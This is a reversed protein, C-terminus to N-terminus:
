VAVIALFLPSAIEETDKTAPARSKQHLDRTSRLTRASSSIHEWGMQNSEAEADGAQRLDALM